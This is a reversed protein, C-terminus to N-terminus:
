GIPPHREFPKNPDFLKRYTILTRYKAAGLNEAVRIMKPNWDGIWTLITDKYRKLSVVKDETFKIMAGEVGKGHYARDVGFIIGVMVERKGFFKYFLFKVKGWWNLNGNVHQFIENLEPLSIYFGIPKDGHYAFLMIDRDMVPKMSKIINKAQKLEMQRFGLHGAWANNYITVFDQALKEDSMGRANRVSYTTDTLLINNKKVFVEQAPLYLDRKYCWQEYYVQFGFDEFFKQYYPPNYNMRYSSMDTFNDVLLGWFADKEGFNIPGDMAEMGQAILWDQAIQLLQQAAVSDDICEFFGLGGTPQKQASGYKKAVFAAVRGIATGDQSFLVWRAAKGDRFLKNQKPDFIKEIDQRLHPIWNSDSRYIFLPVELWQAATRADNVEILKM